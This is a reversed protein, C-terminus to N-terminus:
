FLLVRLTCVEALAFNLKNLRHDSSQTNESQQVFGLHPTKVLALKAITFNRKFIGPDPDLDLKGGFDLRKKRPGPAV